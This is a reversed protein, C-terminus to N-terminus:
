ARLGQRNHRGAQPNYSELPNMVQRSALRNRPNPYLIGLL